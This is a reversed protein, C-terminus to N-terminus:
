KLPYIKIRQYIWTQLCRKRQYNQYILPYSVNWSTCVRLTTCEERKWSLYSLYQSSNTTSVFTTNLVSVQLLVPLGPTVYFSILTPHQVTVSQSLVIHSANALIPMVHAKGHLNVNRRSFKENWWSILTEYSTPDHTKFDFLVQQSRRERMVMHVQTVMEVDRERLKRM